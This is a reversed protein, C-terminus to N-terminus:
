RNGSLRASACAASRIRFLAAIDSRALLQLRDAALHALDPDAGAQLLLVYDFGCLDVSGPQALAGHDAISGAREALARYPPLTEIPQQSPNDFLFPWFARHEILLLAPLHYDLRIGNSLRRSLPGDRWYAPAEEPSVSAVFVRAGPQVTAIVARMDALDHSHQQWALAVIAMRTIFLLTFMTIATLAIGRPLAAPLWAAFLLFGLMIVIRTDLFYTGKFAWPSVLYLGALLALAAGSGPTIRCRRFVSCALLFGGVICGTAIDLPLLYNLFPFVLQELKSPLTAFETDASMAGLPSMLYLGLPLIGLPLAAAIRAAVAAKDHRQPWLMELERGAILVYCFVLGMLHCFFLAVTGICALAVMGWPHRERWAIWAAALLLAIGLAAVFNVFGMLVTANYAVLGSALPWASYRHFVARSYAITGLVPLLIVCGLVIRGALHIPLIHLLPPLVLDSGLNPIVAWRAAYMRALIPDDGFALVTARALHNPYDLLPPMDVLALPALLLACLLLACLLVPTWKM